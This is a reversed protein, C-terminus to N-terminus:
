LPVTGDANEVTVMVVVSVVVGDPVM